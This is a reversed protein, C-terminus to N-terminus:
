TLSIKTFKNRLFYFTYIFPLQLIILYPLLDRLTSLINKVGLNLIDAVSIISASAIVGYQAIQKIREYQDETLGLATEGLSIFNIKQFLITQSNEIYKNNKDFLPSALILLERSGTQEPTISIRLKATEKNTAHIDVYKPSISDVSQFQLRTGNKFPSKLELEVLCKQNIKFQSFPNFQMIFNGEDEDLNGEQTNITMQDLIWFRLIALFLIVYISQIAYDRFFTTRGEILDMYTDYFLLFFLLTAIVSLFISIFRITHSGFQKRKRKEEFKVYEHTELDSSFSMEYEYLKKEEKAKKYEFFIFPIFLLLEVLIIILLLIGNEQLITDGDKFIGLVNSWLISGAVVIVNTVSFQTLTDGSSALSNGKVKARARRTDNKKFVNKEVPTVLFQLHVNKQNRHVFVFFSVEGTKKPDISDTHKIQNDSDSYSVLEVMFQKTESLTNVFAIKIETYKNRYFSHNPLWIKEIEIKSNDLIVEIDRNKTDTKRISLETRIDVIQYTLLSIPVMFILVLTNYFYIQFSVSSGVTIPSELYKWVIGYGITMGTFLALGIVSAFTNQILDKWTSPQLIFIRVSKFKRKIKTSLLGTIYAGIFNVLAGLLHEVGFATIEGTYVHYLDILLNGIGASLAGLLKGFVVATLAPMFIGLRFEAQNDFQPIFSLDNVVLSIVAYLISLIIVLNFNLGKDEHKKM